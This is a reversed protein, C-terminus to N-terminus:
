LSGGLALPFWGGLPVKTLAAGWFLGDLFGFFLLFAVGFVYPLM